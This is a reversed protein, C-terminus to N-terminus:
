TKFSTKFIAILKPNIVLLNDKLHTLILNTRLVEIQCCVYLGSSVSTNSKSTAEATFLHEATYLVRGSAAKARFILLSRLKGVKLM